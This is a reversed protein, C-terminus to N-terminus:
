RGEETALLARATETLDGGQRRGKPAPTLLNRNRAEHLIDRVRRRRNAPLRRAADLTPNRSGKAIADIYDRAVEAYFRDPFPKRGRRRGPAAAAIPKTIGHEALLGEAGQRRVNEFIKGM